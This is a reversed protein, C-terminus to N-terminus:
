GPVEEVVRKRESRLRRREAGHLQARRVDALGRSAKVELGESLDRHPYAVRPRPQLASQHQTPGPRRGRSCRRRSHNGLAVPQSDPSQVRALDRANWRRPLELLALPNGHNSM